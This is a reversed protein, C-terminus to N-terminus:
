MTLYFVFCIQIVAQLFTQIYGSLSTRHRLIEWPVTPHKIISELYLWLVIGVLGLVLPLLVRWSKWPYTAGGLSLGLM